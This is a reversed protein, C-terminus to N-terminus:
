RLQVPYALISGDKCAVILVSQDSNLVSQIVESEFRVVEWVVLGYEPEILYMGRKDVVILRKGDFSMGASLPIKSSLSVTHVLKLSPWRYVYAQNDQGVQVLFKSQRNLDLAKTPVDVFGAREGKGTTADCFFLNWDEGGAVFYNERPDFALTKLRGRRVQFEALTAGSESSAICVRGDETGYVLRDKDTKDCVTPRYALAFPTITGSFADIRSLGDSTVMWIVGDSHPKLDLIRDSAVIKDLVTSWSADHNRRFVLLRGGLSCCFLNGSNDLALCDTPKGIRSKRLTIAGSKEATSRQYAFPFVGLSGLQLSVWSENSAEVLEPRTGDRHAFLVGRTKAYEQRVYSSSLPQYLSVCSAFDADNLPCAFWKERRL